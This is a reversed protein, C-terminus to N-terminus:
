SAQSTPSKKERRGNVAENAGPMPLSLSAAARQRTSTCPLCLIAGLARDPRMGPHSLQSVHTGQLTLTAAPGSSASHLWGGNSYLADQTVLCAESYGRWM